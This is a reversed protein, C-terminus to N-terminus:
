LLTYFQIHLTVGFKKKFFVSLHVLGTVSHSITRYYLFM